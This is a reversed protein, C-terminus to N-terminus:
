PNTNQYIYVETAGLGYKQYNADYYRVNNYRGFLYELEARLVGEGVGHIFVVKQIRRNIAFELQRRATDIQLNLMDHNSLHKKDTLQHIHLDVEMTPEYREKAKIKMTHRKKPEEKEQIIDKTIKSSTKLSKGMVILESALFDLEFGDNTKITVQNGQIAVVMGSINEDLVSVTQGIEFKM